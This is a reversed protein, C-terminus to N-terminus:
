KNCCLRQAWSKTIKIYGANELLMNADHNIVVGRATAMVTHSNVIAEKEGTVKIFSKVEGKM